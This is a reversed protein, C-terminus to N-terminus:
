TVTEGGNTSRTSHRTYISQVTMNQGIMIIQITKRQINHCVLAKHISHAEATGVRVYDYDMFMVCVVPLWNLTVHAWDPIVYLGTTIGQPVVHIGEAGTSFNGQPEILFEKAYSVTGMTTLCVAIVTASFLFLPMRPFFKLAVSSVIASALRTCVVLITALYPNM